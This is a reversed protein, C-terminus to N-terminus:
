QLLGLAEKLMATSWNLPTHPSPVRLDTGDAQRYSVYCEPMKYPPVKRIDYDANNGLVAHWQDPGTVATLALNLFRQGIAHYAAASATDGRATEIRTRSAAWSAIQGLPHTWSATPGDPTLTDRLLQKAELDVPQGSDVADQAVKRKIARIILQVRATHFDLRQYSDGRYRTIGQDTPDLLAELQTLVAQEIDKAPMPRSNNMAMPVNSDALLQPIGYRLIYALAADGTRYRASLPSYDASEDPLRRAIEHLGRQLMDDLRHDALFLMDDRAAVLTQMKSLMATEIALVSTRQAAVEEWSGSNEYRPFGIADLLPVVSALLQRHADTLDDLRLFDQELATLTTFTLMQLSDQKNRWGNPRLGQLDDFYLSIHPWDAQGAQPGREIVDACRALQSPTSLLHLASLLLARGDKTEQSYRDPNHLSLKMLAEATQIQDRLYLMTSMEGHDAGDAVTETAAVLTLDRQTGDVDVSYGSIIPIDLAGRETLFSQLQSLSDADYQRRARGALQGCNYALGTELSHTTASQCNLRGLETIMAADRSRLLELDTDPDIFGELIQLPDVLEASASIRPLTMAKSTLMNWLIM